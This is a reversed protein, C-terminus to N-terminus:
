VTALGFRTEKGWVAGIRGPVGRSANPLRARRRWRPVHAGRRGDQFQPSFRDGAIEIRMRISFGNPSYGSSELLQATTGGVDWTAALQTLLQGSCLQVAGTSV